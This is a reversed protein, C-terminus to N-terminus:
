GGIVKCGVFVVVFVDGAEHDGHRLLDIALDELVEFVTLKGLDGALHTVSPLFLRLFLVQRADGKEHMQDSFPIIPRYCLRDFFSSGFRRSIRYRKADKSEQVRDSRAKRIGPM